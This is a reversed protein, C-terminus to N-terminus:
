MDSFCSPTSLPAGWRQGQGQGRELGMAWWRGRHDKIHLICRGEQFAEGGLSRCEWQDMQYVGTMELVTTVEELFRGKIEGLSVSRAQKRDRSDGPSCRHCSRVPQLTRIQQRAKGQPTKDRRDEVGLVSSM